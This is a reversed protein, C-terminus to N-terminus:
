KWGITQPKSSGSLHGYYSLIQGARDYDDQHIDPRGKKWRICVHQFWRDDPRSGPADYRYHKELDRYIGTWTNKWVNYLIKGDERYYKDPDRVVDREEMQKQWWAQVETITWNEELELSSAAFKKMEDRLGEIFLFKKSTPNFLKRLDEGIFRSYFGPDFTKGREPKPSDLSWLWGGSITLIWWASSMKVIKKNQVILEEFETASLEPEKEFWTRYFKGIWYRITGAKEQANAFAIGDTGTPKPPSASWSSSGGGSPAVDVLTGLPAAPSASSSKSNNGEPPNNETPQALQSYVVSPSTKEPLVEQFVRNELDCPPENLAGPVERRTVNEPKGSVHESNDLRSENLKKVLALKNVKEEAHHVLEMFKEVKPTLYCMNRFCRHNIDTDELQRELIGLKEVLHTVADTVSNAPVNWRASIESRNWQYREDSFIKSMRVIGKEDPESMIPRHRFWIEAFIRIALFHPKGSEHVIVHHWIDPVCLYDGFLRGGDRKAQQELDYIADVVRHGSKKVTIRVPSSENNQTNNRM